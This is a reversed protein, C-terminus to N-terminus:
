NKPKKMLCGDRTDPERREELLVTHEDMESTPAIEPTAPRRRRNVRLESSSVRDRAYQWSTGQKDNLAKVTSILEDDVWSEEQEVM